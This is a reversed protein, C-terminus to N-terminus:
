SSLSSGAPRIVDVPEPQDTVEISYSATAYTGDPYILEAAFWLQGTRDEPATFTLEGTKEDIVVIAGMLEANDISGYRDRVVKSGQPVGGIAGTGDMVRLPIKITQGNRVRPIEESQISYYIDDAVTIVSHPTVIDSSGDPYIAKVTVRDIYSRTMKGPIFYIVESGALTHRIMGTRSDVRSALLGDDIVNTFTDGDLVFQTGEPLEASNEVFQFATNSLGTTDWPTGLRTELPEYQPEYQAAMSVNDQANAVGAGNVTTGLFLSCSVTAVVLTRSRVLM